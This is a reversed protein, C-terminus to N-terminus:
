LGERLYFCRVNFKPLNSWVFIFNRDIKVQDLFVKELGKSPINVYLRVVQSVETIYSLYGMIPKGILWFEWIQIIVLIIEEFHALSINKPIRPMNNVWNQVIQSCDVADASNGLLPENAINIIFKPDVLLSSKDM